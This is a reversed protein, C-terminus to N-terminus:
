RRQGQEAKVDRREEQLLRGVLNRLSRLDSLSQQIELGVAWEGNAPHCYCVEGLILSDELDVQVASNLPVPHDLVVRMGRGSLNSVFGDSVAPADGLVTLRVAQHFPIRSEARSDMVRM